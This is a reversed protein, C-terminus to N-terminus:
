ECVALGMSYLTEPTHAFWSPEMSSHTSIRETYPAATAANPRLRGGLRRARTSATCAMIAAPKMKNMRNM